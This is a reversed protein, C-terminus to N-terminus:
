LGHPRLFDSVVSWSFQDSSLTNRGWQFLGQHQSLNFAPLSLILHNSPMVSEISIPKLFSQSNTISLSTQCVVFLGHPWLSDSVVSCSFQVSPDKKGQHSLHYLIQRCHLLGPEIGPDPLDGPSLLAAWELIRAQLIGHISSGLLSSDTRDFITLCSLTVLVCM